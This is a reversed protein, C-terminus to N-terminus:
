RQACGERESLEATGNLVPGKKTLQHMTRALGAMEQVIDDDLFLLKQGPVMIIPEALATAPFWLTLALLWKVDARLISSVSM